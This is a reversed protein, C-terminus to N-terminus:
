QGAGQADRLASEVAEYEACPWEAEDPCLPVHRCTMCAMKTTTECELCAEVAARWAATPSHLYAHERCVNRTVSPKPVHFKLVAEVMAVLAPADVEAVQTKAERWAVFGAKTLVATDSAVLECREKVGALWAGVPDAAAATM